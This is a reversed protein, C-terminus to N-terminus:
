ALRRLAEVGAMLAALDPAATSRLDRLTQQWQAM